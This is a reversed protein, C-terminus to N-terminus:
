VERWEATCLAAYDFTYGLSQVTAKTELTGAAFEIADNPDLPVVAHSVSIKAVPSMADLLRRQALQNFVAQSDGEVGEEKRTIWRGRNQFSFPSAPDNNEAIGFLPPDDENGQGIVIFRNPVSSLDQNRSWGPAHISFDGSAFERVVQRDGPAEYPEVRFQGSGDCWLSWYGAAELLDNIITLKSEGVEWVQPNKLTADSDTVVIRTEGTSQILSVVAPIIPTGAALSFSSTVSDEDIVSLKSLLDVTYNIRLDTDEMSPSSLRMVAVPWPEVDRVGPDYTCRIRHKLWDIELGTDAIVVQGSAGLRTNANLNLSGGSVAPLPAIFMDGEDLLEFVWRPNRYGHLGNPEM